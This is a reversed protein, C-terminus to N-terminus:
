PWDATSPARGPSKRPTGPPPAMSSGTSGCAATPAWPPWRPRTPTPPSPPPAPPRGPGQSRMSGWTPTGDINWYFWLSDDAGTAAIETATSTRAIAPPNPSVPPGPLEDYGKLNDYPSALFYWLQNDLPIVLRPASSDSLMTPAGVSTYTIGFNGYEYFSPWGDSNGYTVFASEWDDIAGTIVTGGGPWRAIAPTLSCSYYPFSPDVQM